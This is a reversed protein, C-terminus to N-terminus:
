LEGTRLVSCQASLVSCQARLFVQVDAVNTGTGGTILLDGSLRLASNSDNNAALAFPDGNADRIRDLTVHDVIGGAADTPGDRGDTGGSLFVWNPKLRSVAGIAFLLALEQNRGGLGSGRLQVTTEGGYILACPGDQMTADRLVREAATRVDGDLPEDAILAPLGHPVAHLMSDLSQRNSAILRNTALPGKQDRRTALLSSRVSAPLTTWLGQECLLAKAQQATGIQTATPGSAIVRLDDGVVDSLIYGYVSAPAALRLMGGGKLGDIKQRVLNMRLIDLGSDLLARNTQAYDELSIGDVPAAVLSSAGGSILAIIHDGSSAERLLAMVAQGAIVSGQDPVPHAGVLTKAGELQVANEGNTVVLARDVRPLDNLAAQMMPVAAKGIAVVFCRGAQPKPPPASQWHRRLAEAPNAREIAAEFLRAATERETPM